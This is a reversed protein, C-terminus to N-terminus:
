RLFSCAKGIRQTVRMACSLLAFFNFHQVHSSPHSSEACTRPFPHPCSFLEQRRFRNRRIEWANGTQWARGEAFKWLVNFVQLNKLLQMLHATSTLVLVFMVTFSILVCPRLRSQSSRLGGGVVFGSSDVERFSSAPAPVTNERQWHM